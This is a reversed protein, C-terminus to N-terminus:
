RVIKRTARQEVILHSFFLNVELFHYLLRSVEQGSTSLNDWCVHSGGVAGIFRGDRMTTRFRCGTGLLSAVSFGDGLLSIGLGHTWKESDDFTDWPFAESRLRFRNWAVVGTAWGRWSDGAVTWARCNARCSTWRHSEAAAAENTSNSLAQFDLDHSSNVSSHDSSPLVFKVVM